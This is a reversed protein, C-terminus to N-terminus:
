HYTNIDVYKVPVKKTTNYKSLILYRIYGDVLVLKNPMRKENIEPIVTIPKDVYGLLM